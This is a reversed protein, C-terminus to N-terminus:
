EKPLALESDVSGILTHSATLEQKLVRLETSSLQVEGSLKDVRSTLNLLTLLVVYSLFFFCFSITIKIGM